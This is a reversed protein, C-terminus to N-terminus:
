LDGPISTERFFEYFESFSYYEHNHNTVAFSYLNFDAFAFPAYFLTWSFSLSAKQQQGRETCDRPSSEGLLLTHFICMSYQWCPFSMQFKTDATKVSAQDDAMYSLKTEM